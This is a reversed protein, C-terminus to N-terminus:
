FLSYFALVIAMTIAVISASVTSGACVKSPKNYADQDCGTIKPDFAFKKASASLEYKFRLTDSSKYKQSIYDIGIVYGKKDVYFTTNEYTDDRNYIKCKKDDLTGETEKYFVEKTLVQGLVDRICHSIFGDDVPTSTCNEGNHVHEVYHGAEKKVIQHFTVPGSQESDITEQEVSIMENNYYFETLYTTNTKEGKYFEETSVHYACPLDHPTFNVLNACFKDKPVVYAPEICGRYDTDFAFNKAPASWEYTYVTREGESGDTKNRNMGIVYGDQGVYLNVKWNEETWEYVTCFKGLFTGDYTNTYESSHVLPWINEELANLPYEPSVETTECRGAGGQNYMYHVFGAEGRKYLECCLFGSQHDFRFYKYNVYIDDHFTEAQEGDYFSTTLKTIHYECPLELPTFIGSGERVPHQKQYRHAFVCTALAVFIFVKISFKM